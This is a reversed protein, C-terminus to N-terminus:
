RRDLAGLLRDRMPIDFYRDIAWCAPLLLFAFLPATLLGSVGLVKTAGEVFGLLPYHVIYVAYSVLGLWLAASASRKLEANAALVVLAPFWIFVFVLDAYARYNNPVPIIMPAFLGAALLPVPLSMSTLRHRARFIIQGFGYCFVARFFGDALDSIHAGAGSHGKMIILIATVAGAGAVVWKSLWSVKSLLLGAFAINAILEFFLSWAPVNLPFLNGDPDIPAPLLFLNLLTAVGLDGIALPHGMELTLAALNRLVGFALGLAYLPYLRAFRIVAFRGLGISHIKGDYAFALVFGSLLFFFDVALYGGPVLQRGMIDDAHFLVVLFAALGRGGDLAAFKRNSM